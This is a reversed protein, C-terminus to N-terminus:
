VLHCDPADNNINISQFVGQNTSLLINKNNPVCNIFFDSVLKITKTKLNGKKNLLVIEPFPIDKNLIIDIHSIKDKKSIISKAKKTRMILYDYTIKNESQINHYFKSCDNKFNQWEILKNELLSEHLAKEISFNCSMGCGTLQRDLFSLTIVTYYNSFTKLAIAHHENAIFNLDKILKNDFQSFNVKYGNFRESYWFILLENKEILERLAKNIIKTFSEGTATGITDIYGYKINEGYTIYTGNRTYGGISLLFRELYESYMKKFTLQQKNSIATGSGPYYYNDKRVKAGNLYGIHWQDTVCMSTIGFSSNLNLFM